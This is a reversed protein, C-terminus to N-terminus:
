YLDVHAYPGFNAVVREWRGGHWGCIRKWEASAEGLTTKAWMLGSAVRVDAFCVTGVGMVWEADAGEGNADLWGALRGFAAEADVWDQAMCVDELAKGLRAERTPRYFAQSRETLAYCAACCVLNYLAKHVATYAGAFAEHLAATCTPFLTRTNPYTRDLYKAIDSSEAVTRRTAPDYIVPLTYLPLGDDGTYKATIGHKEYVTAIDPYEVWEAKYPIGKINLAFRAKWTSPSWAKCQDSKGPIDYLTIVDAM